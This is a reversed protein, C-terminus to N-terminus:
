ILLIVIYACRHKYQATYMYDHSSFLIAPLLLSSKGTSTFNHRIYLHRYFHLNALKFYSYQKTSAVIIQFKANIILYPNTAYVFLGM